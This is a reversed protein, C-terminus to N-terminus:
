RGSEVAAGLEMIRELLVNLRDYVGKKLDRLEKDLTAVSSKLEALEAMIDKDNTSM